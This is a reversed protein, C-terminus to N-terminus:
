HMSVFMKLVIHETFVSVDIKWLLIMCRLILTIVWLNQRCPGDMCSTVWKKLNKVGGEGKDGMKCFLSISHCWRKALGGEGKLPHCWKHVVGFNNMTKLIIIYTLEASNIHIWIYTYFLTIFLDKLFINKQLLHTTHCMNWLLFYNWTGTLKSVLYITM